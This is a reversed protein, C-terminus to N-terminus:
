DGRAPHPRRRSRPAVALLTAALPLITGAGCSGMTGCMAADPLGSAAPTTGPINLDAQDTGTLAEGSPIGISFEGPYDLVVWTCRNTRDVGQRGLDSRAPRAPYPGDEFPKTAPQRWSNQPESLWCIRLSRAEAGDLESDDYYMVIVAIFSGATLDSTVALRRTLDPLPIQGSFNASAGDDRLRGEVTVGSQAESLRVEARTWSAGLQLTMFLRGQVNVPLTQSAAIAEVAVTDSAACGAGYADTVTVRIEYPGVASPTFVPHEVNTASLQAPNRDVGGIIEWRYAYPPSGGTAVPTGGLGLSPQFAQTIFDAGADVTTATVHITVTDTAVCHPTASDTVTLRLLYDGAKTPVFLPTAAFQHPDQFQSPSADPSGPEISWTYSLQGFGGQIIPSLRVGAAGACTTQYVGADVTMTGVTVRIVASRECPPTASDTVTARLTYTGVASPMFTPNPTAPGPGGFQSVATSPSNPDITWNYSLPEIGRSVITVDLPASEGGACMAFDDTADIALDAVQVALTDTAVCAPNGSDTVLVRLTYPGATGPTFTPGASHPGSDTFQTAASDPSGAEITWEYSYPPTGGGVLPSLAASSTGLCMAFSEGADVILQFATIIVQDTALCPPQSSDSVQLRVVYEGPLNASFRPREATPGLIMGGGAPGSVIQWLYSYPPNSGTAVVPGGMLPSTVGVCVSFPEGADAVYPPDCEDPIGNHNCDDGALQCEDPISDGNCDHSTGAALDCEDPIGNGNCDNSSGAALDCEDPVSNGNCDNSSGAALDCEDPIGNGNCDQSTGGAIDEEDPVGNNNCDCLGTSVTLVAVSSIVAPGCTGFVICQYQGAHQASVHAISLSATSSGTINGDDGLSEFAPGDNFQWLYTLGTGVATVQFAASGEPCLSQNTPGAQIAIVEGITLIAEQSTVPEGCDGSVICRYAGASA